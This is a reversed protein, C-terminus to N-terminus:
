KRLIGDPTHYETKPAYTKEFRDWDFIPSDFLIDYGELFIMGWTFNITYNTICLQSLFTQEQIGKQM